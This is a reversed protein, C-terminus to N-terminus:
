NDHGSENQTGAKSGLREMLAKSRAEVDAVASERDKGLQISTSLKWLCQIGNGSDIIASPKPEFSGNLQNLYRVKADESSENDEPDLDGLLYEVSTIDEKKPKKNLAATSNVTYYLNSKGGHAGVFTKIDEVTHAAKAAIPGDLPIAVLIWPPSKLWQLFKVTDAIDPGQAGPGNASYQQQRNLDDDHM